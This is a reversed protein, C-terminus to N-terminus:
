SPQLQCCIAWRSPTEFCATCWIYPRPSRRGCRLSRHPAEGLAARAARARLRDARRLPIQVGTGILSAAEAGREDAGLVDQEREQGGLPTRNQRQKRTEADVRGGDLARECAPERCFRSARLDIRVRQCREPDIKISNTRLELLPEPRTREL